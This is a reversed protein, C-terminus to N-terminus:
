GTLASSRPSSRTAAALSTSATSSTAAWWSALDGGVQQLNLGLDAVKDRDIFLEAQPQDIKVDIIPPFAFMGSQIAKLQLQQAFRLINEPEETAALVFEVPFQGGGPLAPPTVAFM